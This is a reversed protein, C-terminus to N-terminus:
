KGTSGFGNSGRDSSALEDVVELPDAAVPVLVLQCVRDGAEVAYSVPAHNVLIACVEGRYSPDILGPSNALTVGHRYALGSRPLLMGAVNPPLAIAFGLPVKIRGLAPVDVRVTAYCDYGIAGPEAKTPPRGKELIKIPIM